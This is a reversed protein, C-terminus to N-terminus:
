NEHLRHQRTSIDIQTLKCEYTFIFYSHTQVNWSRAAGGVGMYIYIYQYIQKHVHSYMHIYM